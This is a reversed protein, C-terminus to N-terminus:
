NNAGLLLVDDVYLTLIVFGTGDELAYICPDSKLPCFGIKDLHHEMASFLNRPSQRIGYVGKIVNMVPPVGPKDVIEYGPIM